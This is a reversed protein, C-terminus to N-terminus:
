KPIEPTPCLDAPSRAMSFMAGLIVASTISCFFNVCWLGVEHTTSLDCLSVIIQVLALSSAAVQGSMPMGIFTMLTSQQQKPSEPSQAPCIRVCCLDWYVILLASGHVVTSSGAVSLGFIMLQTGVSCSWQMCWIISSALSFLFSIPICARYM